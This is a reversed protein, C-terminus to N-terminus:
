DHEVENRDLILERKKKLKLQEDKMVDIMENMIGIMERIKNEGMREIVNRIYEDMEDMACKRKLRGIDTIIVYTSRRDEDNVIRHIYGKEELAKLMRSVQPMSIELCLTLDSVSMGTSGSNEDMYKALLELTIIERHSVGGFTMKSNVMKMEVITKIMSSKLNNEDRIEARMKEIEPKVMSM